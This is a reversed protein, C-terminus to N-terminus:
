TKNAVFLKLEELNIGENASIRQNDKEPFKEKLESLKKEDIADIKNFVMYRPQTAGIEDLVENVVQIRDEIFLDSADIVHLLINSEISDELTSKFADILQPPM